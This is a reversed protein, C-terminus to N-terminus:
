EVNAFVVRIARAVLQHKRLAVVAGDMTAHEVVGCPNDISTAKWAMGSNMLLVNYTIKTKM